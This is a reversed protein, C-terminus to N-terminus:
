AEYENFQAVQLILDVNLPNLWDPLEFAIERTGVISM